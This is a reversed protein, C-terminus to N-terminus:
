AKPDVVHVRFEKATGRKDRTAVRIEDGNKIPTAGELSVGNHYVTTDPLPEAPALTLGGRGLQVFAAPSALGALPFIEKGPGESDAGGGLGVKDGKKLRYDRPLNREGLQLRVPTRKGAIAIGIAAIVCFVLSIIGLLDSTNSSPVPPAAPTAPAVYPDGQGPMQPLREIPRGNDAIGIGVGFQHLKGSPLLKSLLDEYRKNARTDPYKTLSDKSYYALYDGYSADTTLPQDNFSDTLLVIVGDSPLNDNVLKLAAEHPLRINTGHGPSTDSPMKDILANVDAASTLKQDFITQYSTGFSELVVRDGPSCGDRLITATASRETGFVDNQKTSQTVDFVFVVTKHPLSKIKAAIDDPSLQAQAGVIPCIGTILAGIILAARFAQSYKM